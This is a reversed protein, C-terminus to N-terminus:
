LLRRQRAIQVAESRSRADLKRYLTKAHTKVTNRSLRLQDALESLTLSGQLLRLVDLERGTLPETMGFAQQGARMLDQVAAVKARMPTMGEPYRDMRMSSEDLLEQALPLESALVAVRAAALLHHLTPWPAVAPDKRRLALGQAVTAKADSLKGAVAQAQGLATFAMSAEPLAILGHAEAIEMASEALEQSRRHKGREAEVLAHCSLALVRTMVPAAASDTAKALASSSLGLEGTVYTAHGLALNAIAFQPSHADTELEVSRRAALAMEVPGGYGFLGEIMAIASEVSRTGDPLPGYDRFEQLATVNAALGAEDGCMGAMWTATVATAPDVAIAKDDLMDFWGLVTATRGADVYKMWNAQVLLAVQGTDGCALLHAVAEDLHGNDRFWAAARAHLSAVRDTHEFELVSRAVTAFLHHFRFWNRQEDLPILFMNTRELEHLVAASGTTQLVVDCLEASFRDLISISYIFNRVDNRLRSLVEETLYDGIFRNGRCFQTVFDDLDARGEMSLAALYLGAPWGETRDLLQAMANSSLEVQQVALLSSAEDPTFALDAARIEALERGARLRGLRLGPDARTVLILHVQHPLHQILFEVQEGCAPADVFRFDDLVLVLHDPMAAMANLLRPLVTGMVDGGDTLLTAVDREVPCGARELAMAVHTWLRLPDNDDADLTLWAAFSPARSSTVWQAVLTTKGFGAPAAVLTVPHHVARDVQDLLRARQVWDARTPPRHLKSELLSNVSASVASAVPLEPSETTDM